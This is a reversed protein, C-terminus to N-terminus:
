IISTIDRVVVWVREDVVQGWSCVLLIAGFSRVLSNWEVRADILDREDRGEV